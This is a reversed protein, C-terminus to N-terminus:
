VLARLSDLVSRFLRDWHETGERMVNYQTNYQTRMEDRTEHEGRLPGGNSVPDSFGKILLLLFYEVSHAAQARTSCSVCARTSWPPEM